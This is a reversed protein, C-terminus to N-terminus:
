FGLYENYSTKASFPLAEALNASGHRPTRAPGSNGGIGGPVAVQTRKPANCDGCGIWEYHGRAPPLQIKLPTIPMRPTRASSERVGYLFCLCGSMAWCRKGSKDSPPFGVGRRYFREFGFSAGARPRDLRMVVVRSPVDNPPVADVWGLLHFGAPGDEHPPHINWEERLIVPLVFATCGSLPM